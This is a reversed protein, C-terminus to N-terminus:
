DPSIVTRFDNEDDDEEELSVPEITTQFGEDDDQDEELVPVGYPGTDEDEKNEKLFAEAYEDFKDRLEPDTDNEEEPDYYEDDDDDEELMPVGYPQSDEPSPPKIDDDIEVVAEDELIPVGYPASDDVEPEPESISSDIEPEMFEDDAVVDVIDDDVDMSSTNAEIEQDATTLLFTARDEPAPTEPPNFTFSQTPRDPRQPPVPELKTHRMDNTESESEEKITNNVNNIEDAPMHNLLFAARDHSAVPPPTAQGFSQTTHPKFSGSSDSARMNGTARMLDVEEDRRRSPARMSSTAKMLDVEQDDVIEARPAPISPTPTRTGRNQQASQAERAIANFVPDRVPETADLMQDEPPPTQSLGGPVITKSEESILTKMLAQSSEDVMRPQRSPAAIEGTMIAPSQPDVRNASEPAAFENTADRDFSQVDPNTQNLTPSPVSPRIRASVTHRAMERSEEKARERNLLDPETKRLPDPPPLNAYNPQQQIQPTPYESSRRPPQNTSYMGSVGSVMGSARMQQSPPPLMPQQPQSQQPPQQWGGGGGMTYQPNQQPPPQQWMGPPPGYPPQPQDDYYDDDYDEESLLLDSKPASSIILMVGGVTLLSWGWGLHSNAGEQTVFLIDGILYMMIIAFLMLSATLMAFRHGRIMSLGIVISVAVIYMAQTSRGAIFGEIFDDEFDKSNIFAHDPLECGTPPCLVPTFLGFGILILGILAIVRGFASM